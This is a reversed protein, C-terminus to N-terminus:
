VGKQKSIFDIKKLQENCVRAKAIDSVKMFLRLRNQIDKKLIELDDPKNLADDLLKNFRIESILELDSYAETEKKLQKNIINENLFLESEMKKQNYVFFFIMLTSFIIIFFIIFMFITM